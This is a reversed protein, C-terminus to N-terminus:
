EGYMIELKKDKYYFTVIVRGTEWCKFNYKEKEMYKGAPNEMEYEAFKIDFGMLSAIGSPPTTKWILELAQQWWKKETKVNIKDRTIEVECFRQPLFYIIKTGDGGAVAQKMSDSIGRAIDFATIQDHANISLILLKTLLVLVLFIVIVGAILKWSILPLQAKKM